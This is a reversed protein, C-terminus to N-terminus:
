SDITRNTKGIRRFLFLISVIQYNTLMNNEKNNIKELCYALM